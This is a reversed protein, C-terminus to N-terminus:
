RRRVTVLWAQAERRGEEPFSGTMTTRELTELTWDGAFADRIEPETVRRPGWDGPEADSFALVHVRGGPRCARHVAAVYRPREEDDFVHFLGSDLVTDFREQYGDLELADAVAFDVQVGRQDAKTRAHAIGAPAADVGAVVYGREALYLANEGTGCGADLVEGSIQGAQELEVVLPQPAGIDWGAEAIM